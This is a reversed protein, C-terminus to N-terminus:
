VASGSPPERLRNGFALALQEGHPAVVGGEGVVCEDQFLGLWAVALVGDHIKESRSAPGSAWRGDPRKLALAAHSTRAAAANL